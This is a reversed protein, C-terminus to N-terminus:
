KRLLSLAKSSYGKSYDISVTCNNKASLHSASIVLMSELGRELAISSNAYLSMNQSVKQIHLMEEYFDDPRTKSIEEVKEDINNQGLIVSDKGPKGGCFWEIFGNSSQARAWKRTPKTIVDQVIRGVLGTETKVHLLCLKDYNLKHEEVYDMSASVEVIRGTKASNAYMQWLNIAHSHESCAGGGKELFGLYSDSPGDLWHHAEFIGGWHERFEVDITQLIGVKEKSLLHAMSIASKSIAHDYGVFVKCNAKKAEDYLEQAGNLDPTCLPKEVLVIKAGEKVASRALSIHSDPPTGIVVLDYGGVSIDDSHFLGIEKDWKGYRSPYIDKETRRLANIDTDCMDVSWGMRRSAQALHNGISGAGHIKVKNIM